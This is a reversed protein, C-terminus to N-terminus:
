NRTDIDPPNQLKQDMAQVRKVRRAEAERVRHELDELRRLENEDLAPPEDTPFLQNRAVMGAVLGVGFLCTASAIQKISM